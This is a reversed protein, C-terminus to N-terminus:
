KESMARRVTDAHMPMMCPMMLILPESFLRLVAVHRRLM